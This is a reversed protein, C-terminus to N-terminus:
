NNVLAWVERREEESLLEGSRQPFVRDRVEIAKEVQSSFQELVQVEGENEPYDLHSWSSGEHSWSGLRSLEVGWARLVPPPAAIV